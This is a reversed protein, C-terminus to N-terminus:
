YYLPLPPNSQPYFSPSQQTIGRFPHIRRRRSTVHQSPIGSERRSNALYPLTKVKPLELKQSTGFQKVGAQLFRTLVAVSQSLVDIEIEFRHGRPYVESM